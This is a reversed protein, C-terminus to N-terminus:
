SSSPFGVQCKDPLCINANYMKIQKLEDILMVHWIRFYPTKKLTTHQSGNIKRLIKILEPQNVIGCGDVTAYETIFSSLVGTPVYRSPTDYKALRNVLASIFGYPEKVDIASVPPEEVSGATILGTANFVFDAVYEGRNKKEL